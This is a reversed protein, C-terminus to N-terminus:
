RVRGDTVISQSLLDNVEAPQYGIEALIEASHQGLRPPPSLIRGPTESLAFPMGPQPVAGVGAIEVERLLERHRYQPDDVADRLTHIPFCPINRDALRALWEAQTMSRFLAELEYAWYERWTGHDSLRDAGTEDPNLLDPREAAECFSRWYRAELLSVSVYRNDRTEYVAYRPSRGFPV